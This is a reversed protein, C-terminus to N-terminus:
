FYLVNQLNHSFTRGLIKIKICENGIFYIEIHINFLTYIKEQTTHIETLKM